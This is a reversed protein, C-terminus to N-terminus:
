KPDDRWMSYCLLILGEILFITIALTAVITKVLETPHVVFVAMICIIATGVIGSLITLRM